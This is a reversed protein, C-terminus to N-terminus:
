AYEARIDDHIAKREDDTADRWGGAGDPMRLAACFDLTRDPLIREWGCLEAGLRFPGWEHEHPTETM